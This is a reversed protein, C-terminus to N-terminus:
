IGLVMFVQQTICVMSYLVAMIFSTADAKNVHSCIEIFPQTFFGPQSVTHIINKNKLGNYLHM